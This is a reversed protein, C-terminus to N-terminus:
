GDTTSYCSTCFDTSAGLIKRLVYRYETDKVISDGLESGFERVSILKDQLFRYIVYLLISNERNSLIDSFLNDSTSIDVETAKAIVELTEEDCKGLLARFKDKYTEDWDERYHKINAPVEELVTSSDPFNRLTSM